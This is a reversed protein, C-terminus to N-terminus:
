MNMGITFEWRYPDEGPKRDLVYGWELRLPGIPSYWRIGAGATQRMDGLNYGGFSQEGGWANGTDYFVVGKMGANKILPFVFDASLCLMTTGGILDNTVPDRPGVDRLGRLTSIGGLYYREYIPLPQGENAQLYGIRGRLDFVTELPFPFYVATSGTYKTFSTSGGLIGGAQLITAANKSGTTPFFNDDTTDRSLTFGMSSTTSSGAQQKIYTSATSLVDQVDSFALTYSVYGMIREWVPHGFVSGFGKTKLNYTDYSRSSNWLDFKSWIPMDFLWPETFSLDYYTSVSGINAKLNLIQGRGFLNEQTVSAMAMAKDLASYGAGMSFMGTPKEKVRINVDALTDDPGKESQFDVEEFYRMRMLNSYSGKLNTSSYLDGEAILLNRRIVKDRTKTNGSLSIRNFYVTNGKKIQYIVDVTLDKDNVKTMPSVDAYAYGEDNCAQTLLDMDKIIAGRDFNDQKRINLKGMLESRKIKLADGTIDVRGIKFRRGETIPIKIYIGKKDFSINPEGVHANIFGNNLYFANLKNADQKLDDKKLLGSDTFYHFFGQEETKMLGKLEKERYSQNGEFSIKKIYTKDNEKISFVVRIDKEKEKEIAYTIEANYYGKNDYLTKIKEISSTIRERNLAQRTKFTLAAEIDKTDLKKNGKIQIDTILGKEKVIFTIVRGDATETVDAVVDDFYGLKYIARIDDALGSESYISGQTSKLVQNLASSEIKKNGQFSIRAIRQTAAIKILIDGRLQAAISSISEPGKGQASYPPLFKGATVDYIKVDVNLREGLETLTGSVVYSAGTIKGMAVVTADDGKRDAMLQMIKEKPTLQVNKAKNLERALNDYLAGQLFAAPSKSYVTFPLLSVKVPEAASIATPHLFIVGLLMGLSLGLTLITCSIPVAAKKHRHSTMHGEM